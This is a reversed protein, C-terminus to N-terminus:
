FCISISLSYKSTLFLFFSICYKSDFYLSLFFFFTGAWPATAVAGGCAGGACAYLTTTDMSRTTSNSSQFDQYLEDRLTIMKKLENKQLQIDSLSSGCCCEDMCIAQEMNSIRTNLRRNLMRNAELTEIHYYGILNGSRGLVYEKMRPLNKIQYLEKEKIPIYGPRGDSAIDDWKIWQKKPVSTSKSVSKSVLSSNKSTGSAGAKGILNQNASSSNSKMNNNNQVTWNSSYYLSPPEGRYMGDDVVYETEYVLKWLKKTAIYSTDLMGGETRDTFSDDHYMVCNMIRMCDKNYKTISTLIHTHWMLDIQYTPILIINQEMALNTLRLFKEYNQVGDYLFTDDTYRETSVQWLFTIQRIASDLIDFGHVLPSVDIGASTNSTVSPSDLYPLYFSENPYKQEWLSKTHNVIATTSQKENDNEQKNAMAFPPNAEIIIDKHFKTYCYKSYQQPALRHCHWLWAVDPPPILQTVVPVTQENTAVVLPLWLEEYRRLSELATVSPVTIDDQSVFTVTTFRHIDKLFQIHKKSNSILDCSFM